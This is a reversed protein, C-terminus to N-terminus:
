NSWPGISVSKPTLLLHTSLIHQLQIEAENSIGISTVSVSCLLLIISISLISGMSFTTTQQKGGRANIPDFNPGLGM